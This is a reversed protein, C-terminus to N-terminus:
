TPATRAPARRWAHLSEQSTNSTESRPRPTTPRCRTRPPGAVLVTVGVTESGGITANALEAPERVTEELTIEGVSVRRVPAGVFVRSVTDDVFVRSATNASASPSNSHDSM